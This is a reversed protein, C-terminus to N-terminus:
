EPSGWPNFIRKASEKSEESEKSEKDKKLRRGGSRGGSRESPSGGERENPTGCGQQSTDNEDTNVLTILTGCTHVKKIIYGAKELMKLYRRVKNESWKWREGLMRISTFIQGPKVTIVDASKKARFEKEEYNVRLILDIYASRDDFPEEYNWIITDLISRKVKAWGKEKGM